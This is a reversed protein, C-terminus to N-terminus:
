GGRLEQLSYYYLIGLLSEHLFPLDFMEIAEDLMMNKEM